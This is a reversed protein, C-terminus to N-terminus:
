PQFKFGLDRSNSIPIATASSYCEPQKHLELSIGSDSHTSKNPLQDLDCSTYDWKLYIASFM